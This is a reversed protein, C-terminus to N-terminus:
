LLYSRPVWPSIERSLAGDVDARDDVAPHHADGGLVWERARSHGYCGIALLGADVDAALSLLSEGPDIDGLGHREIKGAVGHLQM